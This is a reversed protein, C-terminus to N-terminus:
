QDELGEKRGLRDRQIMTIKQWVKSSLGVTLAELDNAPIM